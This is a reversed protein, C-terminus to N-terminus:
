KHMKWIKARAKCAKRMAMYQNRFEQIDEFKEQYLNMLRVHLNNTGSTYEKKKITRLLGMSDLNM